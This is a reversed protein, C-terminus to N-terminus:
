KIVAPVGVALKGKGVSQNVFANAGISCGSELVIDGVCVAGVYITVFDEIKAIGEKGSSGGLTVNQYITVNEGISSCNVYVGDGHVIKIGKGVPINTNMHIGYKYEYHRYILYVPLSLIKSKKLKLCQMIRFWVIYRYTGGRPFWYQKLFNGFTPETIRALDAKLYEKLM